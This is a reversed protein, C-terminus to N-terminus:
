LSDKGKWQWYGVGIVVFVIVVIIWLWPGSTISPEPEKENKKVTFTFEHEVSDNGDSVVVKVIHEGAKPSLLHLHDLWDLTEDEEIWSFTLDDGDEDWVEIVLIIEVGHKYM